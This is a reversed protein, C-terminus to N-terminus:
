TVKKEESSATRTELPLREGPNGWAGTPEDWKGCRLRRQFSSNSAKSFLVRYSRAFTSALCAVPRKLPGDKAAKATSAPTHTCVGPLAAYASGQGSPRAYESAIRPVFVGVPNTSRM